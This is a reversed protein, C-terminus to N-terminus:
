RRPSTPRASVRARPSILVRVEMGPLLIWDDEDARNEIEAWCEFTDGQIQPSAFVIKGNFKESKGGPLDVEVIVPRGAVDSQRYNLASVGAKVRLKDLKIIRLVVDGPNVWEGVDMNIEKVRGTQLSRLKRREISDDTGRLRAEKASATFAAVELDLRAKEAALKAREWEFLRRLVESRSVSNKALQNAEDAIQYDKESVLAAKEAVRVSVDSSAEKSAADFEAQAIDREIRSRVDDLQVLLDGPKVDIGPEVPLAVIKGAEEAPVDVEAIAHVEGIESIPSGGAPAPQPGSQFAVWLVVCLTPIM